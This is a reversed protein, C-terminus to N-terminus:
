KYLDVVEYKRYRKIDFKKMPVASRVIDRFEISVVESDARYEIKTPLETTPDIHIHVRDMPAGEAKPTLALVNGDIRQEFEGSVAEFARAPNQMLLEAGDVTVREIVVEEVKHSVEYRRDGVGWIEVSGLDIHYDDGSVQYHGEMRSGQAEIIIDTQYDGLSKLRGSLEVLPQAVINQLMFLGVFLLIHRM